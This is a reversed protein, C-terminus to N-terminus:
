RGKEMLQLKPVSIASPNQFRGEVRKYGALSNEGRAFSNFVSARVSERRTAIATALLPLTQDLSVRQNSVGFKEAAVPPDAIDQPNANGSALSGAFFLKRMEHPGSFPPTTSIPGLRISTIPLSDLFDRSAKPGKQYAHKAIETILRLGTSTTVRGPLNAPVKSRGSRCLTGTHQRQSDAKPFESHLWCNKAPPGALAIGLSNNRRGRGGSRPPARKAM